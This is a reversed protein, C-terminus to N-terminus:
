GMKPCNLFHPLCLAFLIRVYFLILPWVLITISRVKLEGKDLEGSGDVDTEHFLATAKDIDGAAEVVKTLREVVARRTADMFGEMDRNITQRLDLPEVNGPKM